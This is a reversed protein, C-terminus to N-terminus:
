ADYCKTPLLQSFSILLEIGLIFLIARLMSAMPPYSIFCTRPKLRKFGLYCPCIPLLVHVSHHHHWSSWGSVADCFAAAPDDAMAPAGGTGNSHNSNENTAAAPIKVLADWELMAHPGRAAPSSLPPTIPASNFTGIPLLGRGSGGTGVGGGGGGGGRLNKLGPILYGDSLLPRTKSVLVFM